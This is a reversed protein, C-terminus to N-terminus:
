NKKKAPSIQVKYMIQGTDRRLGKYIGSLLKVMVETIVRFIATTIKNGIFLFNVWATNWM